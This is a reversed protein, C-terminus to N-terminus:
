ESLERLKNAAADGGFAVETRGPCDRHGVVDGFGFEIGRRTLLSGPRHLRLPIAAAYTAHEHGAPTVLAHTM